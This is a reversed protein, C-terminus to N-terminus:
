KVMDPDEKKLLRLIMQTAALHLNEDRCILRIIKANGEMLNNEAFAWSCAFSAYFRVGELINISNLCLWLKKKLDYMNIEITKGNVTHTGEGLARYLTGLEDLDDYY